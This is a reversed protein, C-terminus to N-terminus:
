RGSCNTAWGSIAARLTPVRRENPTLNSMEPEMQMAWSWRCCFADEHKEIANGMKNAGGPAM